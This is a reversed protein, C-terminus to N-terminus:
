QLYLIHHVEARNTTLINWTEVSIPQTTGKVVSMFKIPTMELFSSHVPPHTEFDELTEWGVQFYKPLSSSDNKKYHRKRDLINRMKMIKMDQEIEPTMQTAPLNYWM